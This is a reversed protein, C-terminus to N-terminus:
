GPGTAYARGAGAGRQCPVPAWAGDLSGAAAPPAHGAEERWGRAGEGRGLATGLGRHQWLITRAAPCARATTHGHLTAFGVACGQRRPWSRARDGSGAAGLVPRPEPHIKVLDTNTLQAALPASAGTLQQPHEAWGCALVDEAGRKALGLGEGRRSNRKRPPHRHSCRPGFPQSRPSPRSAPSKRPLWRACPSPLPSM